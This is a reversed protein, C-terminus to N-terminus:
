FLLFVEYYCFISVKLGFCVVMEMCRAIIGWSEDGIITIPNEIVWLFVFLTMIEVRKYGAVYDKIKEEILDLWICIGGAGHADM